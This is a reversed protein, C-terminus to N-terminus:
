PGVRNRSTSRRELTQSYRIEYIGDGRRFLGRLTQWLIGLDTRLGITEVYRVDWELKDEVTLSGRGHVQALGTLGPKVLLRRRQRENWEAM